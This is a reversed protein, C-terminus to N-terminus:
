EEGEDVIGTGDDVIETAPTTSVIEATKEVPLPAAKPKVFLHYAWTMLMSFTAYKTEPPAIVFAVVKALGDSADAWFKGQLPALHKQIAGVVSVLDGQTFTLHWQAAALSLKEATLAPFQQQIIATLEEATKDINQNVTSVFASGNIIADKVASPLSNWARQSANFLGKFFQGIKSLLEKM